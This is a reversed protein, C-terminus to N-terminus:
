DQRSRTKFNIEKPLEKAYPSRKKLTFDLKKINKM